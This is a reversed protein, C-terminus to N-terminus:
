QVCLGVNCDKCQFRTEKRIRIGNDNIKLNCVGCKRTTKQKKSCDSEVYSPLHRGILRIVNQSIKASVFNRSSSDSGAEEILREILKMRFVIHNLIGGKKKFIVFSNWVIQNLLHQFLKKYYKQQQNRAVPYYSLCQDSRDVGHLRLQRTILEVGAGIFIRRTLSRHELTM